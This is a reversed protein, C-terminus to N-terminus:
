MLLGMIEDSIRRLDNVSSILALPCSGDELRIENLFVLALRFTEFNNPIFINIKLTIPLIGFCNVGDTIRAFILEEFPIINTYNNPLANTQTQANETSSYYVAQLGTPFYGLVTPSIDMSLDMMTIGDQNTDEDCLSIDSAVQVNTTFPVCSVKEVLSLDDIAFDNGGMDADVTSLEIRVWKDGTGSPTFEYTVQVWDSSTVTASGSTPSVVPCNCQDEAVFKITPKDAHTPNVNKIWYSFVYTTGGTLKVNPQQKWFVDNNQGDVVMMKGSGSKDTGSQFDVSNVLSPDVVIAYQGPTGAGNPTAIFNYSSHFGANNQEFDPNNNADLLNQAFLHQQGLLLLLLAIRFFHNM